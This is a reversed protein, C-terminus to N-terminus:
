GFSEVLAVAGARTLMSEVRITTSGSVLLTRAAIRELESDPIGDANVVVLPHAEGVWAAPAGGISFWEVEVDKLLKEFVPGHSGDVVDIILGVNTGALAPLSASAPWLMTVVGERVYVAAPEGLGTPMPIDYPVQSRATALDTEGVLGLSAGLARGPEVVPTTPAPAFGGRDFNLSIGPLSDILDAVATRVGPVLALAVAAMSAAIIARWRAVPHAARISGQELRARVMGAVDPAPRARLATGVERLATQIEDAVFEAM